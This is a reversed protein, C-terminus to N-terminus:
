THTFALALASHQMHSFPFVLITLAYTRDLLPIYIRTHINNVLTNCACTISHINMLYTQCTM